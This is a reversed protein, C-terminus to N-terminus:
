PKRSPPIFRFYRSGMLDINSTKGAKWILKDPGLPLAPVGNILFEITDGEKAGEDECELKM